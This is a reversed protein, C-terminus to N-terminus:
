MKHKKEESNITQAFYLSWTFGMPFVALQPHIFEYGDIAVGDIEAVGFSSATGSPLSFWESLSSDIKLRHFCDAVDVRAFYIAQGDTSGNNSEQANGSCSASSSSDRFPSRCPLCCTELSALADPSCM